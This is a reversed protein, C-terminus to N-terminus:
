RKAPRRPQTGANVKPRTAPSAKALQRAATTKGPDFNKMLEVVNVTPLHFTGTPANTTVAALYQRAYPLLIAVAQLSAFEEMGVTPAGSRAFRGVVTADATLPHSPAGVTVTIRVEFEADSVVRWDWGFEDEGSTAGSESASRLQYSMRTAYVERIAYGSLPIGKTTSM